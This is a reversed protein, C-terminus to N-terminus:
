RFRFIKISEFHYHCIMGDKKAPSIAIFKTNKQKVTIYYSILYATHWPKKLSIFTAAFNLNEIYLPCQMAKKFFRKLNCSALM